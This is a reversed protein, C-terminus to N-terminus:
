QPNLPNRVYDLKTKLQNVTLMQKIQRVVEPGEMQDARHGYERGLGLGRDQDQGHDTITGESAKHHSVEVDEKKPLAQRPPTGGIGAVVSEVGRDM